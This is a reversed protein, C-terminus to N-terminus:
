TKEQSSTPSWLDSLNAILPFLQDVKKGIKKYEELIRLSEYVKKQPPAAAYIHRLVQAINMNANHLEKRIGALQDATQEKTADKHFWIIEKKLLVLRVFEAMTQMNSQVQLKKLSIYDAQTLYTRVTRTLKNHEETKRGKM